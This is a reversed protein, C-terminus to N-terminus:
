CVYVIAEATWGSDDEQAQRKSEASFNNISNKNSYDCVVEDRIENDSVDDGGDVLPLPLPPQQQSADVDATM